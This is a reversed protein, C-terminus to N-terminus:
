IGGELPAPRGFLYGQALDFQLQRCVSAEGETEIGEALAQVGIDRVMKVLSEVVQQRQSGARDINRILSMDFKVYHPKAEVLESLRSHGAGFDDFALYIDLDQLQSQLDKLWKAETAAAEHIELVLQTSGAMKRLGVLSDILGNGKLERPHTNVFLLPKDPLNRGVRVGEWRLMQSLEVELNLQSAAEFMAQVSELGFVRGRGLLEYGLLSGNRLSVIPQFHPIVLRQSMLRDFQVLALAQDCVNEAITGSTLSTPSQRRVRFPAEAFHLLDEAGIRVPETIRQGNVYTGNTSGLDRLWLQGDETWLAAHQSSVTRFWLSLGIGSRRGIIFPHGEVPIYRAAEGARTAGSLFWVDGTEM